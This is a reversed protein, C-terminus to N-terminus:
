RLRLWILAKAIRTLGAGTLQCSLTSPLFM